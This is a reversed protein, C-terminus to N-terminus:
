ARSRGRRRKALSRDSELREARTRALSAFADAVDPRLAPAEPPTAPAAAPPTEVV